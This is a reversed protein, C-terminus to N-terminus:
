SANQERIFIIAAAAYVISGMLEKCAHEPDLRKAEIAKKAVQYIIGDVSGIQRNLEFIKQEIFPLGDNAHREKGKGSSAQGYAELLVGALVGYAQDELLDQVSMKAIPITYPQKETFLTTIKRRDPQSAAISAPPFRTDAAQLEEGPLHILFGQPDCEIDVLERIGGTWPNFKWIVGDGRFEHDNLRRGAGVPLADGTEPDFSLYPKISTM